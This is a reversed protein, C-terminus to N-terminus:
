TELMSTHLFSGMRKLSLYYEVEHIFKCKLKGDTWQHDNPVKPLCGIYGLSAEFDRGTFGAGQVGSSRVGADQEATVSM